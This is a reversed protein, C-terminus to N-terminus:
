VDEGSLQRVIAELKGQEASQMNSLAWGLQWVHVRGWCCDLRRCLSDCRWKRNFVCWLGASRRLTVLGWGMCLHTCLVCTANLLTLM